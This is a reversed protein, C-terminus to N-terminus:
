VRVASNDLGDVSLNSLGAATIDVTSFILTPDALPGNTGYVPSTSAAADTLEVTWEYDENALIPGIIASLQYHFLEVLDTPGVPGPIDVGVVLTKSGILVSNPATVNPDTTPTLPACNPGVGCNASVRYVNVTVSALNDGDI